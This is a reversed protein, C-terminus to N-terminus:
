TRDSERRIPYEPLWYKSGRKTNCMVVCAPLVTRFHQMLYAGLVPCVAMVIGGFPFFALEFLVNLRKLRSSKGHDAARM